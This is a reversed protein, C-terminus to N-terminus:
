RNESGKLAPKKFINKLSKKEKKFITAEVNLLQMLSLYFFQQKKELDL